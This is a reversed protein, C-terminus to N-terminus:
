RDNILRWIDDAPLRHEARIAKMQYKGALCILSILHESGIVHRQRSGRPCNDPGARKATGVNEKSVEIRGIM